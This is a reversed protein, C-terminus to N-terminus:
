PAVEGRHELLIRDADRNRLAIVTGRILYARPDGSPSLATCTVRTGPILGLDTLRQKADPDAAIETVYASERLPLTSLTPIESM